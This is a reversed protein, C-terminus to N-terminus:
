MRSISGGSYKSPSLDTNSPEGRYRISAGSSASAEIDDTAWVKVSAGSSADAEVSKAKLKKANLSAGSSADAELHKASGDISLSAGSSVEADVTRAEVGIAVSAGSSADAEFKDAEFMIDSYISAGSSAEIARIKSSTYLKVKAKRNNNGSNLGWNKSKFKIMLEGGSVEVILDDRDGRIVNIEAKPSGEVISVEVGTAVDIKDFTKLELSEVQALIITSSLAFLCISLLQQISKM